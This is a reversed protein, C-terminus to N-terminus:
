LDAAGGGRGSGGPWLLGARQRLPEGDGGADHGRGGMGAAPRARRPRPDTRGRHPGLHRVAAAVIERAEVSEGEPIVPGAELRSMALLNTIRDNLRSAETGLADLLESRADADQWVQASQLGTAALLIASLPTKLEHSVSSLLASKLRESQRVAEARLAEATLRDRELAMAALNAAARVADETVVAADAAPVAAVLLIPCESRGDVPVAWVTEGAEEGDFAVPSTPAAPFLAMRELARAVAGAPRHAPHSAPPTAEWEVLVAEPAGLARGCADAVAALPDADARHALLRESLGLLARTARERSEARRTRERARAVLQSILTSTALFGALAFWNAPNAITLRGLPPLFFYNLALVCLASLWAGLGGGGITAGALVVLLYSLTATQPSDLMRVHVLGATLAAVPAAAMLYGVPGTMAGRLAAALGGSVEAQAM